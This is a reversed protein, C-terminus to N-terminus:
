VVAARLEGALRKLMPAPEWSDGFQAQLGMLHDHLFVVGQSWRAMPGAQYAPYAYGRTFLMDIDEPHMAAGAGLLRCGQNAISCLVARLLAEDDLAHEPGASTCSERPSWQMAALSLGFRECVRTISELSVGEIWLSDLDAACGAIMEQGLPLPSPSHLCAMGLARAGRVSLQVHEFQDSDRVLFQLLTKPGAGYVFAPLLAHGQVQAPLQALDVSEGERIAYVVVAGPKLAAACGACAQLRNAQAEQAFDLWVDAVSLAALVASQEADPKIWRLDVGDATLGCGPPLQAAFLTVAKLAPAQEDPQATTRWAAAEDHIFSSMLAMKQGSQEVEVYLSEELAYGQEFDDAKIAEVAQLIAAKGKYAFFEPSQSARFVRLFNEPTQAFLNSCSRTQPAEGQGAAWDVIMGLQELWDNEVLGDALKLGRAQEATIPTGEMLMKMAPAIGILRALRQTAGAGPPLGIHIEPVGMRATATALRWHCALALELGAGLVRGHMVAVLPKPCAEVADVLPRAADSNYVSGLEHALAGISFDEGQGYVVALQAEVDREYLALCRAFDDLLTESFANFPPNDLQLLALTGERRYNVLSM